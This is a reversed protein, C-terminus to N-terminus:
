WAAPDSAPFLCRCASPSESCAFAKSHAWSNGDLHMRANKGNHVLVYMGVPIEFSRGAAASSNGAFVVSEGDM